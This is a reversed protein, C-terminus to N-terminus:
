KKKSKIQKRKEFPTCSYADKFLKIFMKYNTFGNNDIIQSINNDTNVIDIYAHELRITNLYKFFTIGMYKKFFRSFYESNLYLENSASELTIHERYHNKVYDIIISLRNLYKDSQKIDFKKDKESLKNVLIFLLKFILSNVKLIYGLEKKEYTHYFELLIIKLENIYILIENDSIDPTCMFRTTSMDDIYNECFAYPIQLVVATNKYKCITSHITLSNIVILDNEHMSYDIGNVNVELSGTMIYILELSRHWHKSIISGNDSFYNFKANIDHNIDIKEHKYDM